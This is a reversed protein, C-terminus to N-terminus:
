TVQGPEVIKPRKDQTTQGTDGTRSFSDDM